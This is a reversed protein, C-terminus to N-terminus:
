LQDNRDRSKKLLSPTRYESLFIIKLGIKPRGGVYRTFWLRLVVVFAVM